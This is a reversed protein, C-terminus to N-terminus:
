YKNLVVIYAIAINIVIVIAKTDICNQARRAMTRNRQREREREARKETKIEEEERRKAITNM